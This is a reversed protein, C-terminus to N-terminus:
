AISYTNAGSRMTTNSIVPVERSAEDDEMIAKDEPFSDVDFEEFIYSGGCRELAFAHGDATHLTGTISGTKENYSIVAEDGAETKYTRAHPPILNSFLLTVNNISIDEENLLVEPDVEVEVCSLVHTHDCCPELSRTLPSRVSILDRAALCPAAMVFLSLLSPM